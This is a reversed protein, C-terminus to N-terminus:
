QRSQALSQALQNAGLAEAESQWRSSARPIIKWRVRVQLCEGQRALSQRLLRAAEAGVSDWPTRISTMDINRSEPIDDFGVLLYDKGAALGMSNGVQMVTAALEDNAGIFGCRPQLERLAQMSAEVGIEQTQVMINWEKRTEAPYSKVSDRGLGAHDFATAIGAFRQDVWWARVPAIYVALRCGQRILHQGVQYGADFGDPFVHPIPRSVDTTSILVCPVGSMLLLRQSEDVEETNSSFGLVIIGDAKLSIAREVAENIPILTEDPQVTNVFLTQHEAGAFEQELSAVVQRTWTNNGYGKDQSPLFLTAVVAIRLKGRETGPGLVLEQGSISASVFTGRRDDSRLLGERVLADIARGVTITSTNFVRALDRRGPLM